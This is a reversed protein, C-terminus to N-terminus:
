RCSQLDPDSPDHCVLCARDNKRMATACKSVFGAPHPNFGRGGVGRSAHCTACDRETHCSVCAQINRQAEWAHHERTRPLETFVKAPPHFRGQGRQSGPSGTMTVGARQHCPLCFQQEQHCSVCRPNDLRAEVPHLSLYDNPHVNRPRVRGDHCDTCFTEQHCSGCAKSNDAAVKRHRDLFDATHQLNGMWRPPTLKGEQFSAKMVGSPEKVHCVTCDNSAAGRAPGEMAHCQFCGKMRPLQERTALELEQVAGHCQECNINRDAHVKHNSSLRATPLEMRLVDNGMSPAYGAHCQTCAGMQGDGAKVSALDDHDSGHCSDCQTPKPMMRDDAKVSTKAQTHCAVCSLGLDKDMHKKHNFRITLKQRPYVVDSPGSDPFFAGPPLNALTTPGNPTPATITRLTASAEPPACLGFAASLVCALALFAASAPVRRGQGRPSPKQPASGARTVLQAWRM